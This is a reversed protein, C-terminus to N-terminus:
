IIPYLEGLEGLEELEGLGELKGWGGLEGFKGWKGFKELKGLKKWNKGIRGFKGSWHIIKWQGTKELTQRGNEM